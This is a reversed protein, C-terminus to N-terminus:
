PVYRYGAGRVTEILVAREDGLKKRLKAIHVDTTRTEIREANDLDWVERLLMRRGVIRGQERALISLLQVERSTLVQTGTASTALLAGPDISWSGFGFSDARPTRQTRRLLATVRALLQALSFPKTVYDDSGAAFGLLVDEEQGKATLMVIPLKNKKARLAKCVEFGNIGPLMVDLLVLGYDGALGERLGLEGTDVGTPEYGNFALVDCLGRRIAIEDEVVLVRLKNGSAM